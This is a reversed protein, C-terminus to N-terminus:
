IFGESNGAPADDLVEKVIGLESFSLKTHSFDMAIDAGSITGERAKVVRLMRNCTVVVHGFLSVMKPEDPRKLWLVVDTFRAWATGGALEDFGVGDKRGKKPHTVVWASCGYKRLVRRLAAVFERDAIWPPGEPDAVTIPDIALVRCGRVCCEEAWELIRSYGVDARVADYVIGGFRVLETRHAAFIRDAAEPNAKVWDIRTIDACGSIQALYRTSHFTVDSELEFLGVAVGSRCLHGCLQVTLLSKSSGPDGCLLAISGPLLPQVHQDLLPWPSAVTAITGARIGALRASVADAACPTWEQAQKDVETQVDWPPADDAM